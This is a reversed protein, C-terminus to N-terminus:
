ELSGALSQELKYEADKTEILLEVYHLWKDLDKETDTLEELAAIRERINLKKKFEDACLICM